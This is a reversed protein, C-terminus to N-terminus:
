RWLSGRRRGGLFPSGIIRKAKGGSKDIKAQQIANFWTQQHLPITNGLTQGDPLLALRLLTGAVVGSMFDEYIFDPIGCEDRSLTWVYEVRVRHPKKYPERFVIIPHDGHRLEIDYDGFEGTRLKQWNERGSCSVPTIHVDKVKVIRRCDPMELMYDAVKEQTELEITATAIRTERLFEIITERIAHQIIESPIFPVYALVFPEFDSVDKM